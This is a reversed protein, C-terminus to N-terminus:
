WSPTITFSAAHSDFAEFEVYYADYNTVRNATYQLTEGNWSLTGVNSASANKIVSMTGAYTSYVTSERRISAMGESFIGTNTTSGYYEIHCVRVYIVVASNATGGTITCLDVTPNTFASQFLRWFRRVYSDNASYRQRIYQSGDHYIKHRTVGNVDVRYYSNTATYPQSSAVNLVLPRETVQLYSVANASDQWLKTQNGTYGTSKLFVGIQGGGGGSDLTIGGGGTTEIATFNSGIGIAGTSTIRLKETQSTLAGNTFFRIGGYSNFDITNLTADYGRRLFIATNNDNHVGGYIVGGAQGSGNNPAIRVGGYLSGSFGSSGAFVTGDTHLKTLPNDTGIGVLGSSTIRVREVADSDNTSKTSLVISGSGGTGKDSSLVGISASNYLTTNDSLTSSFLISNNNSTGNYTDRLEIPYFTSSNQTLAIIQTQDKRSHGLTLEGRSGITIHKRLVGDVIDVAYFGLGHSCGFTDAVYTEIRTRVKDTTGGCSTDDSSFDISSLTDGVTWTKSQSDGITLRPTTGKINLLSAPSSTGIGVNGGDKVTVVQSASDYLRLIDGTGSQTVAVAVNTNNASVELKDVETLITDLTTTTGQVTLDGSIVASSATIVGVTINPAGTLGTADGSLPGSISSATLVGVVNLDQLIYSGGTNIGAPVIKTFAM